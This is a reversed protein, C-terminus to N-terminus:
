HEFLSFCRRRVCADMEITVIDFLVVVLISYYFTSVGLLIFHVKIPSVDPIVISRNNNADQGNTSPNKIVCGKVVGVVMRSAVRLAMDSKSSEQTSLSLRTGVTSVSTEDEGEEERRLNRSCVMTPVAAVATVRAVSVNSGSAEKASSVFSTFIGDVVIVVSCANNNAAAFLLDATCISHMKFCADFVANPPPCAPAAAATTCTPDKIHSRVAM